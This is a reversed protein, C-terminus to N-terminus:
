WRSIFFLIMTKGGPSTKFTLEELCIVISKSTNTLFDIAIIFELVNQRKGMLRHSVVFETMLGWWKDCCEVLSVPACEILDRLLM